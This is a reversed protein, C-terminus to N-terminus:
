AASAAYQPCAITLQRMRSLQRDVPLVSRWVMQLRAYDPELLVTDLRASGAIRRANFEWELDLEVSPLTFDLSGGASCGAIHVTEGGTLYDPSTLGAPACNFYRENFDDPLFPARTRAWAEDYTGAFGRRPAWAPAVPAFCTPEPRDFPTDVPNAPDELNPLPLDHFDDEHAAHFGMGVPNRTEYEVPKGDLLRGIGGYAFEWRLPMREFTEPESKCWDTGERQWRRSGFVRVTRIVPGVRLQVDMQRVPRPAIARGVLLIDTAPKALTIDAAARLSSAAPEGWFVDAALFRAARPALQPTGQTLDFTAKVAAYVCEVGAPNCFVSLVAAFPTQNRLQLM